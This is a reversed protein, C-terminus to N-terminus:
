LGSELQHFHLSYQHPARLSLPCVCFLDQPVPSPALSPPFKRIGSTLRYHPRWHRCPLVFLAGPRALTFRDLVVCHSLFYHTSFVLSYLIDNLELTSSFLLFIFRVCARVAQLLGCSPKSVSPSWATQQPLLHTTPPPHPNNTSRPSGPPFLALLSVCDDEM